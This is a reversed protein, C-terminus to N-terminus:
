GKSLLTSITKIVNFIKEEVNDPILDKNKGIKNEVIIRLSLKDEETMGTIEKPIKRMDKIARSFQPLLGLVSLAVPIKSKAAVIVAVIFEVLEKTEKVNSM